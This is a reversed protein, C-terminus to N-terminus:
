LISIGPNLVSFVQNPVPAKKIELKKILMIANYRFLSNNSKFVNTIAVTIANMLENASSKLPRPESLKVMGNLTSKM